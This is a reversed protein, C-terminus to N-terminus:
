CNVNRGNGTFYSSSASGALTRAQNVQVCRSASTPSKQTTKKFCIYSFHSHVM